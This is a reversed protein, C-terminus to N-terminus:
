EFYENIIKILFDNVTIGLKKSEELVKNRISPDPYCYLEDIDKKYKYESAFAEGSLELGFKDKIIKRHNRSIKRKNNMYLSLTVRTTKLEELFKKINTYGNNKEIDTLKINDILNNLKEPINLKLYEEEMCIGGIPINYCKVLM